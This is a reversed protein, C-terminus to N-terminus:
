RRLYEAQARMVELLYDALTDLDEAWYDKGYGRSAMMITEDWKRFMEHKLANILIFDNNWAVNIQYTM